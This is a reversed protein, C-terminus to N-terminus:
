EAKATASKVNMYLETAECVIRARKKDDEPPPPPRLGEPMDEPWATFRIIGDDTKEFCGIDVMADMALDAVERPMKYKIDLIGAFVDQKMGTTGMAAVLESMMGLCRIVEKDSVEDTADRLNESIMVAIALKTNFDM